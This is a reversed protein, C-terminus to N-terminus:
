GFAGPHHLARTGKAKELGFMLATADITDGTSVSGGRRAHLGRSPVFFYTQGSKPDRYYWREILKAYAGPERLEPFREAMADAFAHLGALCKGQVVPAIPWVDAGTKFQGSANANKMSALQRARLLALVQREPDQVQDLILLDGLLAHVHLRGVGMADKLAIAGDLVAKPHEAADSSLEPDGAWPTLGGARLRGLLGPVEVSNLSMSAFAGQLERMVVAENAEVKPVVYQLHTMLDPNLKRLQRAQDALQRAQRAAEEPAAKTFYHAGVMFVLDHNKAIGKLQEKSLPGFGPVFRSPGGMIVRSSGKVVLKRRRGGIVFTQDGLITFDEGRNYEGIYNTRKEGRAEGKKPKAGIPHVGGDPLYLKVQPSFQAAIEPDLKEQSFYSSQVNPLVAALNACFGGAGGMARRLATKQDHLLGELFAVREGDLAVQASDGGHLVLQRVIMAALELDSKPKGGTIPGREKLLVRLDTISVGPKDLARRLLEEILPGDLTLKADCLSTFGWLDRQPIPQIQQAQLARLVANKMEAPQVRRDIAQARVLEAAAISSIPDKSPGLGLEALHANLEARAADSLSSVPFAWSKPLVGGLDLLTSTKADVPPPVQPGSPLEIPQPSGRLRRVSEGGM